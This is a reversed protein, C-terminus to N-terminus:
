QTPSDPRTPSDPGYGLAVSRHKESRWLYIIGPVAVSIILCAVTFTNWPIQPLIPESIKQDGFDRELQQIGKEAEDLVRSNRTGEGRMRAVEQKLEQLQHNLKGAQVPPSDNFQLIGASACFPALCLIWVGLYLFIPKTRGGRRYMRLNLLGNIVFLVAVIAPLIVKSMPFM